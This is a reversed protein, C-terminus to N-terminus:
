PPMFASPRMGQPVPSVPYMRPLKSFHSFNLTRRVALRAEAADQQFQGALRERGRLARSEIEVRQGLDREFDLFNGREAHLERHYDAGAVVDAAAVVLRAPHIARGGVLHAHQRRHDVRERQLIRELVDADDRSHQRRDLHLRQALRIDAAAGHAMEFLAADIIKAAPM